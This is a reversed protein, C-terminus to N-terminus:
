ATASVVTTEFGDCGVADKELCLFRRIAVFSDVVNQMPLAGSDGRGDVQEVRLGDVDVTVQEIFDGIVQLPELFLNLM